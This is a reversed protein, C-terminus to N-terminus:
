TTHYCMGVIKDLTFVLLYSLKAIFIGEGPTSLILSLDFGLDLM